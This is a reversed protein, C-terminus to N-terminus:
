LGMYITFYARTLRKLKMWNGDVKEIEITLHDLRVAKDQLNTLKIYLVAEIPSVTGVDNIAEPVAM